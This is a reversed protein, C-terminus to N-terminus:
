DTGRTYSLMYETSYLITSGLRQDNDRRREFSRLSGTPYDECIRRLETEAQWKLKTGTINDKDICFITIPVHEEYGYPSQDCDMLPSSNPEGISFVLDVGKTKFVKVMPYDPYGYAIIYNPLNASNLGTTSDTLYDVTRYRADEVSSETYSGGTLNKFPLFTLDCERHSFSDGGVSYLERVAKVEFYKSAGSIIEDGEEVVDATYGLADTRVYSGPLLDRPHSGSERIAMEITTEEYFPSYWGTTSDQSGLQLRRRTVNLSGQGKFVQLLRDWDDRFVGLRFYGLECSGLIAMQM